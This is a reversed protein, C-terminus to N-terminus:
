RGCLLLAPGPPHLPCPALGPTLPAPGAAPSLSCPNQSGSLNLFQGCRVCRHPPRRAHPSGCPPPPARGPAPTPARPAHRLTAPSSSGAPCLGQPKLSLEVLGRARAGQAGDGPCMERRSGVARRPEPRRVQVPQAPLAPRQPRGGVRGGGGQAGAGERGAANGSIVRGKLALERSMFWSGASLESVSM